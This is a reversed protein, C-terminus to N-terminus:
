APKNQMQCMPTIQPMNLDQIQDPSEVLHRRMHIMGKLHRLSRKPLNTRTGSCCASVWEGTKSGCLSTTNNGEFVSLLKSIHQTEITSLELGQRGRPSIDPRSNTECCFPYFSLEHTECPETWPGLLSSLVAVRSNINTSFPPSFIPSVQNVQDCIGRPPILLAARTQASESDRTSERTGHDLVNM